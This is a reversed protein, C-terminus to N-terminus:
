KGAANRKLEAAHVRAVDGMYGNDAYEEAALNIHEKAADTKGAAELFLGIYLHAYLLRQALEAEGPNGTKAANLVDEPTAKGQFMAYVQMMPIRGDSRIPILGKRAEDIGETRAVCLYHWVANEVDEPNVTKHTEFQKAGRKFEGAYYLSIGRQWHHPERAPEREIVKDFDAVSETFHGLRFQDEGRREHAIVSGPSLEIVRTYDDVAKGFERRADHVAARAGYAAPDKPDSEVAKTAHALAAGSDGRAMAQRAAFIEEDAPSVALVPVVTTLLVAVLLIAFRM